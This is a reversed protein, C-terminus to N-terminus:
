KGLYENLAEQVVDSVIQRVETEYGKTSGTEDVTGFGFSIENDDSESMHLDYIIFATGDSAKIYFVDESNSKM